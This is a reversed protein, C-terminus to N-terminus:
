TQCSCRDKRGEEREGGRGLAAVSPATKPPLTPDVQPPDPTRTHPNLSVDSGSEHRRGSTGAGRSPEPQLKMMLTARHPCNVSYILISKPKREERGRVKWKRERVGEAERGEKERGRVRGEEKERGRVRGGEKM